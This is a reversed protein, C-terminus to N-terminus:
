VAFANMDLTDFFEDAGDIKYTKIGIIKPIAISISKVCTIPDCNQV